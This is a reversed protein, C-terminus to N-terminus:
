RIFHPNNQTAWDAYEKPKKGDLRKKYWEYIKELPILGYNAFESDLGVNLCLDYPDNDIWPSHDHVHGYINAAGYCKRPWTKLPYHCLVCTFADEEIFPFASKKFDVVKILDISDFMNSLKETAKDHNGVILHIHCGKSKLTHLYKVAFNRNSLIFDGLVYVHDGRKVTNLWMNKIWEDHGEIDTDSKLGMIKVRQPEHKLINTHNVHLDAIVWVNYFQTQQIKIEEMVNAFNCLIKTFVLFTAM